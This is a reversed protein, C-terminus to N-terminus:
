DRVYNKEYHPVVSGEALIVFIGKCRRCQMSRDEGREVFWANRIAYLKSKKCGCYPCENKSTMTHNTPDYKFYEGGNVAELEEDNITKKMEEMIKEKQYQSPFPKRWRM